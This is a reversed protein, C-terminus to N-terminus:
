YKNNGTEDVNFLACAMRYVGFVEVSFCTKWVGFSSLLNQKSCVRVDGAATPPLLLFLWSPSEEPSSHGDFSAMELQM